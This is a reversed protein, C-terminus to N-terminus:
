RRPAASTAPPVPAIATSPGVAAQGAGSPASRQARFQEREAATVVGDHNLDMADFHALLGAEFQALTISQANGFAREILRQMGGSRSGHSAFQAAAQEAEERSVVGDHNADLMQFLMQARHQVEARTQEAQGFGGGARQAVAPATIAASGLAVAVIIKNM